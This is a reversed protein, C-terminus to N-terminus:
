YILLLKDAIIDHKLHYFIQKLPYELLIVIYLIHMGTNRSWSQGNYLQLFLALENLNSLGKGQYVNLQTLFTTLEDYM